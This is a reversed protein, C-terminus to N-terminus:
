SKRIRGRCRGGRMGAAAGALELTEPLDVVGVLWRWLNEVVAGDLDDGGSRACARDDWIKLSMM